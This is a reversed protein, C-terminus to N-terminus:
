SRSSRSPRKKSEAAKAIAAAALAAADDELKDEYAVAPNGVAPCEGGILLYAFTVKLNRRLSPIKDTQPTGGKEWESIAQPSTGLLDGLWKQTAKKGLRKRALRIRTGISM